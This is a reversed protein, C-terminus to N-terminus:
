RRSSATRSTSELLKAINVDSLRRGLDPSGSANLWKQLRKIRGGTQTDQGTYVLDVNWDSSERSPMDSPAARAPTVSMDGWLTSYQVM